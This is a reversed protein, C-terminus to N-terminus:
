STPRAAGDKRAPVCAERTSLVAEALALDVPRTIKFNPHLAEVLLCDVGIREMVSAEDTPPVSSANAAEYAHALAGARFLQPTQAQWLGERPVTREIHWGSASAAEGASRQAAVPQALRERKLTDAVRAALIGGTGDARVQAILRRIDDEAVLPRAADHVLAWAHEGFRRVVEQVGAQVSTARTAGGSVLLIRADSSAELRDFRRDDAALVLVVADVVDVSLMTDVAHEILRRGGLHAYQKPRDSGFRTGRGAAPLVAVVKAAPMPVGPAELPESVGAREAGDVGMVGDVM